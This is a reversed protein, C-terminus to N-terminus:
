NYYFSIYFLFFKVNVFYISKNEMLSYVINKFLLKNKNFDMNSIYKLLSNM